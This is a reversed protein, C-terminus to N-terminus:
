VNNLNSSFLELFFNNAVGDNKM